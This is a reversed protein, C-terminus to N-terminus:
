YFNGLSWCYIFQRMDVTLEKSFRMLRDKKKTVFDAMKIKLGHRVKERRFLALRVFVVPHSKHEFLSVLAYIVWWSTQFFM